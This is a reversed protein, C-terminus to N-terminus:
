SNMRQFGYKGYTWDSGFELADGKRVLAGMKILDDVTSRKGESFLTIKGPERGLYARVEKENAGALMLPAKKAVQIMVCPPQQNTIVTFLQNKDNKNVTLSRTSLFRFRPPKGLEEITHGHMKMMGTVQAIMFVKANDGDYQYKAADIASVSGYAPLGQALEPEAHGRRGLDPEIHMYARETPPDTPIDYHVGRQSGSGSNRDVQAGDVDDDKRALEIYTKESGTVELIQHAGVAAGKTLSNEVSRVRRPVSPPEAQKAILAGLKPLGAAEGNVNMKGGMIHEQESIPQEFRAPRQPVQPAGRQLKPKSGRIDPVRQFDSSNIDILQKDNVVQAVNASQAILSEDPTFDVYLNGGEPPLGGYQKARSEPPLGGYQKPRPLPRTMLEKLKEKTPETRQHFTLAAVAHTKNDTQQLSSKDGAPLSENHTQQADIPLAPLPRHISSNGIM